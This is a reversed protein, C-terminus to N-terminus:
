VPTKEYPPDVKTNTYHPRSQYATVVERHTAAESDWQEIPVPCPADYTHLRGDITRVTISVTYITGAPTHDVWHHTNTSRIIESKQTM